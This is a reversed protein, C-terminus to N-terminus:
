ELIQVRGDGEIINGIEWAKVGLEKSLALAREVSRPSLILIMGVGMNFTRFMEEGSVDGKKQITHFIPRIPWSGRRIAASLGQPLVRPINDYFGGGTIHAAAKIRVKKMIQLVTQAYIKTPRLLERALQERLENQSLINRVLSFGNSPLGSSAMGIIRDGKRCDQGDVIKEKSVMGVCFGALDWKDKAYLGPLEATEGGLLTCGAIQCGKVIGKMVDYLKKDDLRGCAIYDLFFLPEAGVVVVDDVCMAVLDIGITDYRELLDALLLKTGVGDTSSVLVPDRVGKLRPKFFGSFGGIKGLVEPRKTKELLSKIREVFADAKDINVGAKKYTFGAM